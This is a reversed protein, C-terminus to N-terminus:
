RRQVALVHQRQSALVVSDGQQFAKTTEEFPVVLDCGLRDGGRHPLDDRQHLDVLQLSGRWGSDHFGHDVITDMRPGGAEARAARLPGDKCRHLQDLSFDALVVDTCVDATM